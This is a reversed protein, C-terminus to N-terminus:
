QIGHPFTLGVYVYSITVYVVYVVELCLLTQM